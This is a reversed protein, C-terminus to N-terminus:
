GTGRCRGAASPRAADALAHDDDALHQDHGDDEVHEIAAVGPLPECSADGRTSIQAVDALGEAAHLRDVVDVQLKCGPSTTARAPGCRRRCTWASSSARPRRGSRGAALTRMARRSASLMGRGGVRLRQADLGDVLRQRQGVVEVRDGVQEEAALQQRAPAREVVVCPSAARLTKRTQVRVERVDAHRHTRQRAALALHHRDRARQVEVGADQDHVLGARREPRLLRAHDVVEHLRRLASPTPM